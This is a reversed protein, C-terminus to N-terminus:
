VVGSHIKDCYFHGVFPDKKMKPFNESSSASIDVRVVM